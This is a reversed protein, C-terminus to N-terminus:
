AVAEAPSLRLRVFSYAPWPGGYELAYHNDFLAAAARLAEGFALARTREILLAADCVMKEDRPTNTVAECTVADLATLLTRSLRERERALTEEFMSGVELKEATSPQGTRFMRDRLARLERSTRVMHEFINPVNWLLKVSVECKGDLRAIEDRIEDHNARLVGLLEEESAAIHGFAAPVLTAESSVTRVVRHHPELNARSPLLQQVPHTSVIAAIDDCGVARLPAGALGRLQPSPRFDGRTFGYLYSGLHSM